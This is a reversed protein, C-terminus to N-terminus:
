SFIEAKKVEFPRADYFLENSLILDNKVTILATARVIGIPAPCDLDYVLIAQNENGFQARITLGKIMQMFGNISKLVAEKGNITALPSILQIDPHLYKEVEVLNKNIIATYYALALAINKESM